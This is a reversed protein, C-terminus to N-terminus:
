SFVAEKVQDQTPRTSEGEPSILKRSRFKGATIRM